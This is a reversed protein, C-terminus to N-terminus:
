VRKVSIIITLLIVVLCTISVIQTTKRSWNFHDEFFDYYHEMTTRGSAENNKTTQGAKVTTTTEHELSSKTLYNTTVTNSDSATSSTVKTDDTTTGETTPSNKTTAINATAPGPTHGSTPAPPSISSDDDDTIELIKNRRDKTTDDEGPQLGSGAEDENGYYLPSSYIITPLIFVLVTFVNM